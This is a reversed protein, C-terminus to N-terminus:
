FTEKNEIGELGVQDSYQFIEATVANRGSGFDATQQAITYVAVEQDKIDIIRIISSGNYIRLGYHRGDPSPQITNGLPAWLTRTMRKWSFNWDGSGSDKVGIFDIPAFERLTRAKYQVVTATVDALDGGSPVWKLYRTVNFDATTFPLTEIESTVLSVFRESVSHSTKTTGRRGRILNSLQYTNTGILTATQFGIVEDGIVCYNLGQLVESETRSLLTGFNLLVQVTNSRDWGYGQFDGLTTTITGATTQLTTARNSIYSAQSSLAKYITAGLFENGVDISQGTYLLPQSEDGPRLPGCEVVYSSLEPIEYLEQPTYVADSSPVNSTLYPAEILSGTLGVITGTVETIFNAGRTTSEIRIVYINGEIDIQIVDSEQTLFQNPALTFAVTKNENWKQWLIANVRNRAETPTLTINVEESIVKTIYSPNNQKIESQSGQQLDSTSDSYKFSVEKPFKRTDINTIVLRNENQDSGEDGAKSSLHKFDISYEPITSKKKFYIVADYEYSVIDYVLMLDKLATKTSGPGTTVFGLMQITSLVPDTSFQSSTYGGREMVQTIAQTVTTSVREEIIFELNPISNGTNELEYGQFVVYSFGLYAPTSDAGEKSQMLSSATTQTGDYVTMSSWRKNGVAGNDYILKGNEFIKKVASISNECLLVAFDISYKYQYSKPEEGGGGGAM